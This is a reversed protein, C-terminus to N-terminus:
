KLFREPRFPTLDMSLPANTVTEAVLQGTAPGLSLGMMGHGTAITLNGWRGARGIYPLGDPSCPRLGKWVGEVAPMSVPMDPYYQRIGDVIGRVRNMNVSQDTGAVELTGAFRLDSGMPTATARAELMIAPVRVNNALGKLMFSYGKGGQLPLRVGLKGALGPSWAGGAM